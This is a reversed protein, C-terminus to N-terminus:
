LLPTNVTKFPRGSHNVTSKLATKDEALVAKAASVCLKRKPPELLGRTRFKQFKETIAIM